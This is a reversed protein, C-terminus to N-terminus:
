GGQYIDLIEREGVGEKLMIVEIDTERVVIVATPSVVAMAGLSAAAVLCRSALIIKVDGLDIPAGLTYDNHLSAAVSTVDPQM